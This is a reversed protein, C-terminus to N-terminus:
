TVLGGSSTSPSPASWPTIHCTTVQESPLDPTFTSDPARPSADAKGPRPPLLHWLGSRSAQRTRTHAPPPVVRGPFPTLSSAPPARTATSISRRWGTPWATRSLHPATMGPSQRQSNMLNLEPCFPRPTLPQTARGADEAGTGLPVQHSARSSATTELTCVLVPWPQRPGQGFPQTQVATSSRDPQQPPGAAAPRWQSGPGRLLGRFSRGVHGPQEVGPNPQLFPPRSTRPGSPCGAGMPDLPSSSPCLSPHRASLSSARSYSM